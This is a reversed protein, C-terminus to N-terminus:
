SCMRLLACSLPFTIAYDEVFKFVVAGTTPFTVKRWSTMEGNWYWDEHRDDWGTDYAFSHKLYALMATVKDQAPYIEKISSAQIEETMLVCLEQM